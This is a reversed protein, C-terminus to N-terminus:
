LAVTIKFETLGSERNQELQELKAERVPPESKLGAMLSSVAAADDTRGRVSLTESAVLPDKADELKKILPQVALSTLTIAPPVHSATRDLLWAHRYALRHSFEAAAARRQGSRAQSAGRTKEQATLLTQQEARRDKLSDAALTGVILLLLMLGLVPLRLRRSLSKAIMCGEHTPRVAIRWKMRDRCFREAQLRADQEPEAAPSDYCINGTFIGNEAFYAELPGIQERRVFSISGVRSDQGPRIDQDSFSWAFTEPDATVKEVLPSGDAPKTIIGHGSVSVLVPRAACEKKLIAANPEDERRLVRIQEGTCGLVFLSMSYNDADTFRVRLVALPGILRQLLNRKM